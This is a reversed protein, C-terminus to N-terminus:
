LVPVCKGLHPNCDHSFIFIGKGFHWVSILYFDREPSSITIVLLAMFLGKNPPFFALVRCQCTSWASQPYPFKERWDVENAGWGGVGACWSIKGWPPLTLSMTGQDQMDHVLADQREEEERERHVLLLQCVSGVAQDHSSENSSNCVELFQM